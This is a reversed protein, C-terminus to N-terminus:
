CGESLEKPIIFYQHLAHLKDHADALDSLEKDIAKAFNEHEPISRPNALMIDINLKHETIESEYRTKLVSLITDRMGSEGM